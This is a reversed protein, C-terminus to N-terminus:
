QQSGGMIKGVRALVISLGGWGLLFAVPYRLLLPDVRAFEPAGAAAALSVPVASWAALLTGIVVQLVRALPGGQEATRLAWLAGVFGPFILDAPLGTAIGAVMISGAAAAVATTTSAPETMDIPAFAASELARRPM